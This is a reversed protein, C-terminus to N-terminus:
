KRPQPDVVYRDIKILERGLLALQLDGDFVDTRAPAKGGDLQLLRNFGAPDQQPLM